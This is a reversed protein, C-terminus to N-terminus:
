TTREGRFTVTLGSHEPREFRLEMGHRDCVGRTIDLGLGTGGKGRTRAASGRYGRHTLSQMDEDSLGPGDDVVRVVFHKEGDAHLIVAVHGGERNYRIANQVVNGFAQELLTVDGSITLREEPVAHNLEIGQGRAVPTFRSSLREILENLDVKYLLVGSPGAELKAATALNAVLSTTYDVERLADRVASRGEADDEPVARRVAHIHGQLVTLPTMVDHTTNAVFARLTEERREVEALHERVETGADNFARALDSVEDSGEVAVTGEYDDDASERVAAELRRIRRVVPGSAVLVAILVGGSVVLGVWWLALAGLPPVEGTRRVLVFACPSDVWPMRVLAEYGQEELTPGDLRLLAVDDGDHMAAVLEADLPPSNTNASVLDDAYAWFRTRMERGGGRKGRRPGRRGVPGADPAPPPPPPALEDGAAGRRRPRPPFREPAAECRERGGAQMRTVAFEQLIQAVRRQELDVRLWVSAAAMPLAAVVVSIALRTRLRM